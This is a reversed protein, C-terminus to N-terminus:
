HRSNHLTFKWRLNKSSGVLSSRAHFPISQSATGLPTSPTLYSVHSSQNSSSVFWSILYSWAEQPVYEVDVGEIAYVLNGDKDVLASNNVPGVDKEHLPGEKDLEGSCAKQWRRYWQRAVLYWTDGVQMQKKNLSQVLALKDAPSMPIAIGNQTPFPALASTGLTDSLDQEAM